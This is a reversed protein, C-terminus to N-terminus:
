VIRGGGWVQKGLFSFGLQGSQVGSRQLWIGMGGRRKKQDLEHNVSQFFFLFVFLPTELREAGYVCSEPENPYLCFLARSVFGLDCEM